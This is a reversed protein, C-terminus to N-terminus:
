KPHAESAPRPPWVLKYVCSVKREDDELYSVEQGREDGGADSM